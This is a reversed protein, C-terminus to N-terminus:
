ELTLRGVSVKTHGALDVEKGKYFLRVDKANGIELNFPPTGKIWQETNAPNVQKHITKGHKDKIFVWSDVAFKLHISAQNATTADVASAPSKVHVTAEAPKVVPAVAVPTAPKVVPAVAVPAAPKVVPAVAVPAAPKVVPAVAVPTAPKVVSAVAVPTAPKVVPAVAVPAVPKVVPVVVAPAAPKVLPAVVASAAPKTESLAVAPVSSAANQATAVASAAAVASASLVSSASEIPSLEIETVVVQAAEDAKITPTDQFLWIILAVLLGLGVAASLWVINLRRTAQSASLPVDALDPQYSSLDTHAMPLANLLPVEDIQLFRAYSRVFGRVFALEPLKSFEDAELAEVQRPAFKVNAAVDAITLNKALRAERLIKGVSLPPLTEPLLENTPNTTEATIGM